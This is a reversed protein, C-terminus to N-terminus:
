GKQLILGQTLMPSKAQWVKPWLYGSMEKMIAWDARRQEKNSVTQETLLADAKPAENQKADEIRPASKRIITQAPSLNRVSATHDTPIPRYRLASTASFSRRSPYPQRRLLSRSMQPRLTLGYSHLQYVRIWPRLGMM